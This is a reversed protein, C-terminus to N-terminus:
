NQTSREVNVQTCGDNFSIPCIEYSKITAEDVRYKSSGSMQVFYILSYFM